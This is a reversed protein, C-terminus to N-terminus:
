CLDTVTTTSYSQIEGGHWRRRSSLSCTTRSKSIGFAELLQKLITSEFNRGQDSHMIQPMGITSFLKILASTITPAKQNPLLIAADAWKTFYDQIVLLYKNGQSPVPVTLIDVAVMQWPNGIPMSVLPAKGPLALKITPLNCM